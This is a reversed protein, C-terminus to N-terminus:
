YGYISFDDRRMYLSVVIALLASNALLASGGYSVFPLPIGIVPLMSTAMGINVFMHILYIGAAGAAVMVGFPHKMRTGLTVLRVLLGLFLALLLVAGVFGFEEGIVSFIFDTSQEPVYAGQTQTGELFGKGSFGGSGIAAMSQLQHFGANDRFEAAGPNTFSLVRALQYPQLVKAMAFSAIATTGGAFLAAVGAVRRDRTRWWMFATFVLAFVIASPTHVVSLYGAVAPALMLLLIDFELGSWFLAIPILGLFVLATGTDNQALIIMAPLLAIGVISLGVSLGMTKPRRMGVLQALALVTGVKAFESVQFQAPGVALWAKAGNIERGFLLAALLFLITLAYAPFAALQLFRIPLMLIIVFSVASIVFWMVQRDFNQRPTSTYLEAAAGHTTSYIAALGAGILLLWLVLTTADIKSYWSNM